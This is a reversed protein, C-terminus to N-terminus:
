AGVCVRVCLMGEGWYGQVGARVCDHLWAGM